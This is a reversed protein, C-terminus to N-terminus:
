QLWKLNDVRVVGTGQTSSALFPRLMLRYRAGGVMGLYPTFNIYQKNWGTSPALEVIWLPDSIDSGVQSQLGVQLPINNRYNIELFCPKGPTLAIQDISEAILYPARQDVAMRLCSTGEMVSDSNSDRLLVTDSGLRARMGFGLNDFNELWLYRVTNRYTLRPRLTDTLGRALTRLTDWRNYFPYIARTASIGNLFVGASLQLNVPGEKLLPIRAPLPFAGQLDGDIFVWVDKINSSLTGQTEPSPELIMSDVYLYSPVGEDPKYWGCGALGFAILPCLIWLTMAPGKITRGRPDIRTRGRPNIRLDKSM